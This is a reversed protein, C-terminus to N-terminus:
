SPNRAPPPTFCARGAQCANPGCGSRDPGIADMTRACWYGNVDSDVVMGPPQAQDEPHYYMTKARLEACAPLYRRPPAGAPTDRERSM